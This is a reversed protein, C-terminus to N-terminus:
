EAAEEGSSSDGIPEDDSSEWNCVNVCVDVDGDFADTVKYHLVSEPAFLKVAEPDAPQLAMFPQRDRRDANIAFVQVQLGVGGNANGAKRAEQRKYFLNTPLIMPLVLNSLVSIKHTYSLWYVKGHEVETTLFGWDDWAYHEALDTALPTLIEPQAARLLAVKRYVQIASEPICEKTAASAEVKPDLLQSLFSNTKNIQIGGNDKNPAWPFPMCVRIPQDPNECEVSFRLVTEQYSKPLSTLMADITVNTPHQTLFWM